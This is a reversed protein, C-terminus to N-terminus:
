KRKVRKMGRFQGYKDRKPKFRYSKKSIKIRPKKLKPRPHRLVYKRKKKM